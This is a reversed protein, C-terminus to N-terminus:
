RFLNSAPVEAINTCVLVIISINTSFVRLNRNWDEGSSDHVSSLVQDLWSKFVKLPRLGVGLVVPFVNRGILVEFRVFAGRHNNGRVLNDAVSCVEKRVVRVKRWLSSTSLHSIVYLLIRWSVIDRFLKKDMICSLDKFFCFKEVWRHTRFKSKGIGFGVRFCIQFASRYIVCILREPLTLLHNFSLLYEEWSLLLLVLM